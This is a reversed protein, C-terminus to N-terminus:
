GKNSVKRCFLLFIGNPAPDEGDDNFDFSTKPISKKPKKRAGKGGFPYNIRRPSPM